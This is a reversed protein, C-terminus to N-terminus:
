PTKRAEDMAAAARKIKDFETASTGSLKAKMAAVFADTRHEVLVRLEKSRSDLLPPQLKEAIARFGIKGLAAGDGGQRHVTQGAIPTGQMRPYAGSARIAGVTEEFDGFAHHDGQKASLHIEGPSRLAPRPQLSPDAAFLSELPTKVTSKADNRGKTTADVPTSLSGAIKEILAQKSGAGAGAPYLLRQQEASLRSFADLEISLTAHQIKVQSGSFRLPGSPNAELDNKFKEGDTTREWQFKEKGFPINAKCIVEYKFNSISQQIESLLAPTVDAFRQPTTRFELQIDIQSGKKRLDDGVMELLVPNGEKKLYKCEALTKNVLASLNKWKKLSYATQWHWAGEIEFGVRTSTEETMAPATHPMIADVIAAPTAFQRAPSIDEDKTWRDFVQLIFKEQQPHRARADAAVAMRDAATTEKYSGEADPDPLFVKRQTVAIQHILQQQAKAEPRNDAFETQRYAPAGPRTNATAGPRRSPTEKQAKM